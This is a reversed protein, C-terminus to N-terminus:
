TEELRAALARLRETEHGYALAASCAVTTRNLAEYEQALGELVLRATVKRLKCTRCRCTPLHGGKREHHGLAQTLWEPLPAPSGAGPASVADDANM